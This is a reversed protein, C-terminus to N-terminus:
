ILKAFSHAGPLAEAAARVEHPPRAAREFSDFGPAGMEAQFPHMRAVEHPWAERDAWRQMDRTSCVSHRAPLLTGSDLEFAVYKVHRGDVEAIVERVICTGENVYAKGVVIEEKLM